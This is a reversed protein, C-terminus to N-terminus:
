SYDERQDVTVPEFVALHWGVPPPGPVVWETWVGVSYLGLMRYRKEERPRHALYVGGTHEAFDAGWTATDPREWQGEDTLWAGNDRADDQGTLLVLKTDATGALLGHLAVHHSIVAHVKHSQGAHPATTM